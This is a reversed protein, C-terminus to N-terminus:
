PTQDQLLSAAADKEQQRPRPQFRRPAIATAPTRACRLGPPSRGHQHRVQRSPLWLQPLRRPLHRGRLHHRRPRPRRHRLFSRCQAQRLLPTISQQLPWPVQARVQVPVLVLVLPVPVLELELELELALALVLVPVLVLVLARMRGQTIVLLKGQRITNPICGLCNKRFSLRLLNLRSPAMHRSFWSPRPQLFWCKLTQCSSHSRTKRRRFASLLHRFRCVAGDCARGHMAICLYQNAHPWM